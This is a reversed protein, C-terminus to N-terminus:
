GSGRRAGGRSSAVRRIAAGLWKGPDSGGVTAHFFPPKPTDFAAVACSRSSRTGYDTKWAAFGLGSGALHFPETGRTAANGAIPAFYIV